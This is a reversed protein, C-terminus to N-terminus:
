PCGVCEDPLNDQFTVRTLTVNGANYLGGGAVSAENEALTSNHVTLTGSGNFIGGGTGAANKTLTSNDITLTGANFIGGGSGALLSGGQITVGTITVTVGPAITVVSGGLNGDLITRAPGAGLLAKWSCRLL